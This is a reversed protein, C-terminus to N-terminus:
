KKGVLGWDKSAKNKQQKRKKQFDLPQTIDTHKESFALLICIIGKVQKNGM